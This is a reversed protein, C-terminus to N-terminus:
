KSKSLNFCVKCPLNKIKEYRSKSIPFPTLKEDFVFNHGCELCIRYKNFQLFQTKIIKKLM